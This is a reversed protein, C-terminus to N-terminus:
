FKQSIIINKIDNKLAEGADYVMQENSPFPVPKAKLYTLFQNEIARKDGQYNAYFHEFVFVTALPYSDVQQKTYTNYYSVFGDVKVEKHQTFQYYDCTIKSFKDVKIDNGLSDKAVNGNSDLQYKWGDKIVKEQVLQKENVHEPSISINKFAIAMIYDYNISQQPNTHYVTWEDNLGYTNFNLLDEELRKPIIQQTQNQLDVQIFNIGKFHAEEIKAKTDKYNYTLEDLYKFDEFAKRFDYKSNANQMLLNANAYLFESLKNKSEIIKTSYNELSFKAMRNEENVYLPLLPRLQNQIADLKLYSNYITEANAPNNEKNLFAITNLERETHRAFAEELMYIYPQNKEKTKNSTLKDMAKYMTAIYNGSNLKQQTNKVGSCATIGIALFIYYLKKM